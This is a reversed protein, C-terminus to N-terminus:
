TMKTLNSNTSREIEPENASFWSLLSSSSASSSENLLSTSSLGPSISLALTHKIFYFPLDVAVRAMKLKSKIEQKLHLEHTVEHVLNM